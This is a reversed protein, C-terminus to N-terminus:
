NKLLHLEIHKALESPTIPKTLFCKTKLQPMALTAEISHIEIASMFCIQLKENQQWLRKALEFGNMSPMRIDLVAIDYKKPDQRAAEIPDIFADVYYKYKELGRRLTDTIDQTDDVLMVRLTPSFMM